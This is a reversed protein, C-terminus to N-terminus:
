VRHAVEDTILYSHNQRVLKKSRSSQEFTWFSAKNRNNNNNKSNNARRPFMLLIHYLHFLFRECVFNTGFRVFISAIFTAGFQVSVRSSLTLCIM